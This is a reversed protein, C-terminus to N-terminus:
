RRRAHDHRELCSTWTRFNYCDPVDYYRRIKFKKIHVNKKPDLEYNHAAHIMRRLDKYRTGYFYDVFGNQWIVKAVYVRIKPSIKYNRM